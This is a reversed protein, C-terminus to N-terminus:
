YGVRWIRVEFDDNREQIKMILIAFADALDDHREYGFGTLQTLLEECGKRPFLINGDKLLSTTILLRASKDQGMVKVGQAPYGQKTLADTLAKQYGVEEIFLLTRFGNGNFKSIWKAKEMTAPFDLKENVIHPLIYIKINEGNGYVRAPVM